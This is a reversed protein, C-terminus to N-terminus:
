EYLSAGNFGQAWDQILDAPDELGIHLRVVPGRHSWDTVSRAQTMNVLTVLSEYGGWSAGIGFWQLSDILSNAADDSTGVPLEFSLLGNTGHCDRLWLEHGPHCPLAPCFVAQVAPHDQLWHAVELAHQEHLRLRAALTRM